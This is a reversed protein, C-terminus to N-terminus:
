PKFTFKLTMPKFPILYNLDPTPSPDSFIVKKRQWNEIDRPYILGKIIRPMRTKCHLNHHHSKMKSMM